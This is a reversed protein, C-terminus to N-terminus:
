QATKCLDGPLVANINKMCIIELWEQYGASGYDNDMINKLFYHRLIKGGFKLKNLFCQQRKHRALSISDDGYGM